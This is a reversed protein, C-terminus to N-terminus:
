DPLACCPHVTDYGNSPNKWCPVGTVSNSFIDATRYFRKAAGNTCTNQQDCCTWTIRDIYQGSGISGSCESIQGYNQYTPNCAAIALTTTLLLIFAGALQRLAKTKM